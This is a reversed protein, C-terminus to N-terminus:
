LAREMFCWQGHYEAPVEVGEYAACDIFGSARYLRQASKMFMASDLYVRQYGFSAADALLRDLLLQGLNMGRYEARVYIRKIEAVGDRLFRLGGMGANNGDVKLLYFVGRPPTDGCVKDIVTPVYESAPMGIVENTPVGFAQELGELVWSVYEVNLEILVSRHSNPNAAILECHPM